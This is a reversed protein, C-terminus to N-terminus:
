YPMKYIPKRVRYKHNNVKIDKSEEKNTYLMPNVDPYNNIDFTPIQEKFEKYVSYPKVEKRGRTKKHQYYIKNCDLCKCKYMLRNDNIREKDQTILVTGIIDSYHGFNECVNQLLDMIYRIKYENLLKRYNLNDLEYCNVMGFFDFSNIKAMATSTYVIEKEGITSFNMKNLLEQKLKNQDINSTIYNKSEYYKLIANIINLEKKALNLVHKLYNAYDNINNKKTNEM